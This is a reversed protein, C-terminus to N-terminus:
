VHANAGFAHFFAPTKAEYGSYADGFQVPADREGRRAFQACMLVLSWLGYAPASDHHM